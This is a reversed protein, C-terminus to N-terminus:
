RRKRPRAMGFQEMRKILTRRSIGLLTAAHTQNGACRTLAEEIRQHMARDAAARLEAIEATPAPLPKSAGPVHTRGLTLTVRMKEVPLHEPGIKGGRCLLTAREIVNRLERLNGPWSYGRLIAIAEPSLTPKIGGTQRAAETLFFGALAELEGLRDRLPPVVVTVGALRFFLDQRFGSATENELDRNTAAVFRVDLSRPKLSGVRTVQRQEIVRLLKAQISPSMEGVEDLFVTGGDASELLGVKAAVAGTFAGREHGFLESELLSETLAACNLRLFPKRARQSLRHVREAIIEKGVGTEGLILVSINGSAVRDLMQYLDRMIPDQVVPSPADIPRPVVGIAGSTALALLADPSRGDRPYCALGMTVSVGNEALGAAIRQSVQEAVDAASDVLLVEYDNPGYEGIADSGRVVGAVLDCLQDASIEATMRLRLLAFPNGSRSSRLCEEEVRVEFYDHAWVRRARPRVARRQIVVSVQGVTLVEGCAVPVPQNAEIAVERVRTGNSSGLDCITMPPGLTLRAHARSISVDDILVDSNPARGIVAEGSEPLSFSLVNGGSIAVLCLRGLPQLDLATGMATTAVQPTDPPEVSL